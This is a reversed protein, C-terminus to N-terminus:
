PQKRRVRTRQVCVPFGAKILERVFMRGKYGYVHSKNVIIVSVLDDNRTEIELTIEDPLVKLDFIEM